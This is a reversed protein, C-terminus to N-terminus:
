KRCYCNTPVDNYIAKKYDWNQKLMATIYQTSVNRHLEEHVYQKLWIVPIKELFYYNSGSYEENFFKSTEKSPLVYTNRTETLWNEYTNFTTNAYVKNLVAEIKGKLIDDQNLTKHAYQVKELEEQEELTITNYELDKDTDYIYKMEALVQRLYEDPCNENWWKADHREGEADMVWYRREFSSSYDKLFFAENTNGYFVCHRKYLESRRGYSLRATEESQSVFQKTQETEKKTFAAMEDFGVVWAKNLKDINDKNNSDCTITTDYGYNVGLSYVLRQMLKSKGTGQTSDYIILVNDFPCGPEYLRKIMAYLWKKTLSRNLKTDKVGVFKIFLDEAREQGDWCITELAEKFPNFSNRHTLEQIAAEVKDRSEFGLQNELERRFMPIHHDRILEGDFSEYQTFENFRFKDKYKPYNEFFLFVNDLTKKPEDNKDFALLSYWDSKTLNQTKPEVKPTYKNDMAFKEVCSKIFNNPIKENPFSTKIDEYIMLYNFDKIVEGNIEIKKTTENYKISSYENHNKLFELITNINM